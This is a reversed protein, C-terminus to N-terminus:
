GGIIDKGKQLNSLCFIIEVQAGVKSPLCNKFRKSAGSHKKLKYGM